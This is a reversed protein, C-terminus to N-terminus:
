LVFSEDYELQDVYHVHLTVCVATKHVLAVPHGWFFLGSQSIPM